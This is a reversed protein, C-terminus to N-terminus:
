QGAEPQYNYLQIAPQMKQMVPICQPPQLAARHIIATVTLVLFIWTGNGAVPLQDSNDGGSADTASGILIPDGGYCITEGTTYIAGSTFLPRVTVTWSGNINYLQYQLNCRKCIPYVRNNSNPRRHIMDQVTLVLYIWAM